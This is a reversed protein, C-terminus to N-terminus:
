CGGAIPWLSTLMAASESRHQTGHNVIHLLCHWLVRERTAGSSTTYRVFGSMDADTLSALYARMAQEEEQWRVVLAELTPFDAAALDPTITQHQCLM